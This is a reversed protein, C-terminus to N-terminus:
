GDLPPRLYLPVVDGPEQREGALYRSLGLSAVAAPPAHRLDDAGPVLGEGAFAHPYRAPADGIVLLPRPAAPVAEAARRAEVRGERVLEGAPDPRYLATYVYGQFANRAVLLAQAQSSQLAEAPLAHALADVSAVGMLPIGQAFALARATALGVRVGTYSGPGTGGVVLGLSARDLGAEALCAGIAPMLGEGHRMGEEIIHSALLRPAEGAAALEVIAAGGRKGSTEIGLAIM